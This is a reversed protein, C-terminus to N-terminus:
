TFLVCVFHLNASSAGISVLDILATPEVYSLPSQSSSYRSEPRINLRDLGEGHTPVLNISVRGGVGAYM